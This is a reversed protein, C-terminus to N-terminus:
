KLKIFSDNKIQYIEDCMKKITEIRHSSIIITINRDFYKVINSLIKNETVRDIESTAEDLILLQPSNYLARAIGIRQAQGGSIKSYREGILYNLMEKKNFLNGLECIKILELVKKQEDIELSHLSLSINKEVSDNFLFINQQVYGIINHWKSINKSINVSDVLIQGKTPQM